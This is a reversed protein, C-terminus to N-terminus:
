YINVDNDNLFRLAIAVRDSLSLGPENLIINWSDKENGTPNSLLRFISRLYPDVLDFSLSKCLEKWVNNSNSNSNNNTFGALATAVLKHNEYNSSNLAKIARELSSLHFIAWGAAKEFEGVREM